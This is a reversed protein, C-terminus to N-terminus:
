RQGCCSSSLESAIATMSEDSFDQSTAARLSAEAWLDEGLTRDLGLEFMRELAFHQRRGQALASPTTGAESLPGRSEHVPETGPFDTM